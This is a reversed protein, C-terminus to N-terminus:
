KGFSFGGSRSGSRTSSRSGSRFSSRSSSSSSKMRNYYGPKKYSVGTPSRYYRGNPYYSRQNSLMSGILYGTFFGSGSPRYRYYNNHRDQAIVRQEEKAVQLEFVKEDKTQDYKPDTDKNVYGIVGGDKKMDVDVHGTGTYIKKTKDNVATEFGQLDKTQGSVHKEFEKTLKELDINSAAAASYSGTSDGSIAGFACCGFVMLSVMSAIGVILWITSKKM